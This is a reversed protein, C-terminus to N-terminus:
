RRGPHSPGFGRGSLCNAAGLYSLHETDDDLDALLGILSDMSQDLLPLEEEEDAEVSDFLTAEPAPQESAPHAPGAQTQLCM